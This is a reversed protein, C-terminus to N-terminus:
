AGPDDRVEVLGEDVLKQLLAVLDEECRDPEVEYEAVIVERLQSVSQPRQILGWIRAGVNDLGYYTGSTPNLIVVEGALDCAVQDRAAVVVTRSSVPM